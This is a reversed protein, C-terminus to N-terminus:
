QWLKDTTKGNTWLKKTAECVRKTYRAHPLLSLFFSSPLLLMIYTIHHCLSHSYLEIPMTRFLWTCDRRTTVFVFHLGKAGVRERESKTAPPLQSIDGVDTISDGGLARTKGALGEKQLRHDLPLFFSPALGAM